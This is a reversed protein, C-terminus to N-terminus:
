SLRKGPWTELPTNEFNSIYTSRYATINETVSHSDNIVGEATHTEATLHLTAIVQCAATLRSPAVSDPNCVTDPQVCSKEREQVEREKV